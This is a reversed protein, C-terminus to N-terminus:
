FNDVTSKENIARLVPESIVTCVHHKPNKVSFSPSFVSFISALDRADNDKRENQGHAENVPSIRM